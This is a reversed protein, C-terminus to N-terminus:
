GKLHQRYSEPNDLDGKILEVGLNKLNQAKESKINRCLAKVTFGQEILNRAVAGGQNGTGGTVFITKNM